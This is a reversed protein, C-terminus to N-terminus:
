PVTNTLVFQIKNIFHWSICEIKTAYTGGKFAYIDKLYTKCILNTFCSGKSAKGRLSLQRHAVESVLLSWRIKMTWRKSFIEEFGFLPEKEDKGGRYRYYNEACILDVKINRKLLNIFYYVLSCILAERTACHNLIWRGICPVCTWARTRSTGVHRPAVLGM